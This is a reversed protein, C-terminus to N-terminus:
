LKRRKMYDLIVTYLTTPTLGSCPAPYTLAKRALESISLNSYHESEMLELFKDYLARYLKQKYINSFKKEKGHYLRNRIYYVAAEDSIYFQPVPLSAAIRCLSKTDTPWSALTKAKRYLYPIIRNREINVQSVSGKHRMTDLLSQLFLLYSKYKITKTLFIGLINAFFLLEGDM